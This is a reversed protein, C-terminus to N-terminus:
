PQLPAYEFYYTQTKGFSLIWHMRTVNGHVDTDFVIEADFGNEGAFHGTALRGWGDHTFTLKGSLWFDMNQYDAGVLRGLRDWHFREFGEVGDSRKFSRETLRGGANFAYVFDMFSGDKQDRHTNILDGQDNYTYTTVSRYEDGFEYVKRMLRGSADYESRSAGRTAGNFDYHEDICRFRPNMATFPNTVAPIVKPTPEWEYTFTQTWQGNGLDWHSWIMHGAGNYRYAINGMPRGNRTIDSRVLRDGEYVHDIRGTFWGKYKDGEAWLLRGDESWGFRGTGGVGDSRKFDEQILRGQADHTYTELSKLSDSFSRVKETMFGNVDYLHYAVSYRSSDALHWLTTCLRGARDYQCVTVAKEGSSSEYPMRVLRVDSYTPWLQAQATAALILVMFIWISRITLWSYRTNRRQM